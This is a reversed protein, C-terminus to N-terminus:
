QAVHESEDSELEEGV